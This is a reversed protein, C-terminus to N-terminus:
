KSKKKVIKAELSMVATEHFYTKEGSIRSRTECFQLQVSESKFHVIYTSLRRKLNPTQQNYAANIM